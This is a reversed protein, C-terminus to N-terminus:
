ETILQNNTSKDTTESWNISFPTISMSGSGVVSEIRDIFLKQVPQIRTRNYLKFAQMYDQDNFGSSNNLYGFLVPSAGFATYIRQEVKAGLNNYRDAFNDASLREVTTKNEESSNFSLLFRGANESGTFKEYINKEIEDMEKESPIGNNFSIIASATFNNELENLNFEDIKTETIVPKIASGWIPVGYTDRSQPTKITIISSADDSLHNWANYTISKNNRTYKKAFDENYWIRQNYKDTRVYRTDLYYVQSPEGGKNRVIQLYCIGFLFYDTALKSFLESWNMVPNPTHMTLCEVNDGAVFSASGNIITQLTPCKCYLDFLFNPYDNSNGWYIYNRGNEISLNLPIDAQIDKHIARFNLKNNEM